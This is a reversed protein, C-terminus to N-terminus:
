YRWRGYIGVSFVLVYSKEDRENQCSGEKNGGQWSSKRSLEDPEKGGSEM